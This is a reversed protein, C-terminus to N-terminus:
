YTTEEFTIALVEIVLFMILFLIPQNSKIGYM